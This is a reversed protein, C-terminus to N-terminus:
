VDWSLRLINLTDMALGEICARPLSGHMVVYLEYYCCDGPKLAIMHCTGNWVYATTEKVKVNSDVSCTANRHEKVVEYFSWLQMYRNFRSSSHYQRSQDSHKLDVNVVVRHRHLAPNRHVLMFTLVGADLECGSYHMDPKPVDDLVSNNVCPEVYRRKLPLLSGNFVLGGFRDKAVVDRIHSCSPTPGCLVVAYMGATLQIAVLRHPVDPSSVPLYVPIDMSSASQNVSKLLAQLLCAEDVHSIWEEERSSSELALAKGAEWRPTCVCMKGNVYLAAYASGCDRAFERVTSQLHECHVAPICESCSSSLLHGIFPPPIIVGDGDVRTEEEDLASVGEGELVVGMQKNNSKKKTQENSNAKGPEGYVPFVDRACHEFLVDLLPFVVRVDNKLKELLSLSSSNNNNNNNDNHNHDIAKSINEEGLLLVLSAFVYDLLLRGQCDEEKNKKRSTQMGTNNRNRRGGGGRLLILLLCDKAGYSKWILELSSSSSFSTSSNNNNAEHISGGGGRSVDTRLPTNQTESHLMEVEKLTAFSHIAGLSGIVSYPLKELPLLSGQQLGYQRSFLPIGDRTLCILHSM